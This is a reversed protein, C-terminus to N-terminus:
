READFEKLMNEREVSFERLLNEREALVLNEIQRCMTERGEETSKFHRTREALLPYYMDDPDTCLIDHMQKGIATDEEIAGNVYIIYSDENFSEGTELIM